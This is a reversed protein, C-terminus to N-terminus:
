TIRLGVARLDDGQTDATILMIRSITGAPMDGIRKSLECVRVHATVTVHFRVRGGYVRWKNIVYVIRACFAVRSRIVDMRNMRDLCIWASLSKFCAHKMFWGRDQYVKVSWDSCPLDCAERPFIMPKKTNRKTSHRSHFTWKTHLTDKGSLLHENRENCFASGNHGDASCACTNRSAVIRAVGLVVDILAARRPAHLERM